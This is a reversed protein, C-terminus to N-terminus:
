WGGKIVNCIYEVDGVDMKWNLPLFLYKDELANMNPLDRRRGGFLTYIDNRLQVMNNEVGHEKLKVAFDHRNEVLVGLTYLFNDAPDASEIIKIGSVGELGEKYAEFLEWRQVMIEDYAELGGLGMAADIDTPQYKYGPLEMDGMMKRGKYYQFNNRAKEERDIGFWRLRKALQYETDDPLALLGGDGTTFQKIAQFSYVVRGNDHNVGLAQASDHVDAQINNKIGNLDVSVLYHSWPTYERPVVPNLTLPDIDMFKLKAGRRILPISTATCTLVPVYVIDGEGIHLLEYALELASTGSNVMVPREINFREGFKKEFEDVQPGQGLWRTDLTDMVRKKINGDMYPYFLKIDRPIM